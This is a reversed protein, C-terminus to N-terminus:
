PRVANCSLPSCLAPGPRASAFQDEDNVGHTESLRLVAPLDKAKVAEGITTIALSEAEAEAKKVEM